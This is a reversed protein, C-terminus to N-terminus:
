RRAFLRRRRARPRRDASRGRRGSRTPRAKTRIGCRTPATSQAPGHEHVTDARSRQRGRDRGDAPRLRRLPRGGSHCRWSGRHRVRRPAQHPALQQAQQQVQRQPHAGAGLQGQPAQRRAHVEPRGQAAGRRPARGRSSGTAAIGFSSRAAATSVRPFRAKSIATTSRSPRRGRRRATQRPSRAVAGADGGM